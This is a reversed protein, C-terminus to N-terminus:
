EIVTLSPIPVVFRGGWARIGALQSVVEDRLNWPLILVYEPRDREIREPKHVPIRVGPLFRGQKRPSRDVTYALLDTRVGCYNLLTNGKAPAGYGVVADGARRAEILFALLDHKLEAVTETFGTYTSLRDLEASNERRRVVAVAASEGRAANSHRVYLRLSGGHTELLDLDVIRLGHRALVPEIALLSFYSFHEHYITDFQHEEILRLLHPFEITATGHPKLVISLGEVFDNLNPVHALVNNAIVLDASRNDVVLRRAVDAGFFTVLTPVGRREAAEACNAAPEIGLSPIGHEIMYQLLYGDNSAIEIM